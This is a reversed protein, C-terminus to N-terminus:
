NSAPCGGPREWEILRRLQDAIAAYSRAVGILAERMPAPVIAAQDVPLPAAPAPCVLLDAPPRDDIKKAIPVTGASEVKEAGCGQM